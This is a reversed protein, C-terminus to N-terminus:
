RELEHGLVGVPEEHLGDPRMGLELEVKRVRHLTRETLVRNSRLLESIVALLVLQLSFVILVAGM